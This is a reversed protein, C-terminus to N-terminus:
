KSFLGFKIIKWALSVLENSLSRSAKLTYKLNEILTLLSFLVLSCLRNFLKLLLEAKPSSQKFCGPLISSESVRNHNQQSKLCMFYKQFIALTAELDQDDVKTLTSDQLKGNLEDIFCNLM